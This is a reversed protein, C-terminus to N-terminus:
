HFHKLVTLGKLSHMLFESVGLKCRYLAFGFPKVVIQRREILNESLFAQTKGM